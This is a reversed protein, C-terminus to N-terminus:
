PAAGASPLASRYVSELLRELSLVLVPSADARRVVRRVTDYGARTALAPLEDVDSTRVSIVEVAADVRLGLVMGGVELIAVRTEAGAEAPEAYLAHGLDILPLVVGRIDIVGEILQPAGPLPTVEQSRVIERIQLVDIGYVRGRTEFCALDVTAETGTASVSPNEAL